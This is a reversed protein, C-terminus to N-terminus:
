IIYDIFIIIKLLVLIIFKFWIIITFLGELIGTWPSLVPSSVNISITPFYIFVVYLFGPLTNTPKGWLISLGVLPM